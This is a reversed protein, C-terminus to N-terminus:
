HCCCGNHFAGFSLTMKKGLLSCWYDLEARFLISPCARTAVLFWNSNFQSHLLSKNAGTWQFNYVRAKVPISCLFSPDSCVSRKSIGQWKIVYAFSTEDHLSVYFCKVSSHMWRDLMLLLKSFNLHVKGCLYNRLRQLCIHFWSHIISSNLTSKCRYTGEPQKLAANLFFSAALCRRFQTLDDGCSAVCLGM